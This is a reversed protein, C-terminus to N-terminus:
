CAEGRAERMGLTLGLSLTGLIAAATGLAQDLVLGVVIVAISAVVITMFYRCTWAGTSRPLKLATRELWKM